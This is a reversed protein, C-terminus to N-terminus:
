RGQKFITKLSDRDLAGVRSVIDRIKSLNLGPYRKKCKRWTEIDLSEKGNKRSARKNELKSKLDTYTEYVYMDREFNEWPKNKGVYGPAGELMDAVMPWNSTIHELKTHPYIQIFWEIERTKENRSGKVRFLEERYEKKGLFLYASMFEYYRKNNRDFGFKDLIDRIYQGPIPPFRSDMLDMDVKIHFKRRGDINEESYSTVEKQHGSKKEAEMYKDWFLDLWKEYDGYIRFGNRPVPCDFKEYRSYLWRVGEQFKRDRLLKKFRYYDQSYIPTGWKFKLLKQKKVEKM